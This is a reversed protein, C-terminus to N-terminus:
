IACAYLFFVNILIYFLRYKISNKKKKKKKKGGSSCCKKARIRNTNQITIVNDTYMCIILLAFRQSKLYGNMNKKAGLIEMIAFFFPFMRGDNCQCIQFHKMLFFRFCLLVSQYSNDENWENPNLVCNKKIELYLCLKFYFM